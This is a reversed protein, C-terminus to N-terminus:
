SRGGRSRRRRVAIRIPSGGFGYRERLQNALYRRYSETIADADKVFVVFTPPRIGTQTAYLIGSRRGGPPPRHAVAEEIFRNMEATSLRVSGAEHVRRATELLRRVRQGTAASVLVVPAHRVFPLTERVHREAAAASTNDKEILDWKNFAIVLGRGAEEALSAIKADQGVVGDTADVVLIAVDCREISRFSRMASYFEVGRDIRSRKRLGATDVLVYHEGEYEITTDISDRTTGPESDVIVVDQGVIANVLSSKGVNPRGVLALRLADPSEPVAVEPILAVLRDLLDGTGRGHLASVPAPEGLGLEHFAHVDMEQAGSDVKNVALLVPRDSRRVLRAVDRDLATPGTERDVVLIIADAESIASEAQARVMGSLGEAENPVLGGTDVLVFRRGSWDTELAKRDRTVGPEDDVVAARSRTLRNFLMSKGVNPRGVVAVLPLTDASM